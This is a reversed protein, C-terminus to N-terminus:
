SVFVGEAVMVPGKKRHERRPEREARPQYDKKPLPLGRKNYYDVAALVGLGNPGKPNYQKLRREIVALKESDRYSSIAKSM